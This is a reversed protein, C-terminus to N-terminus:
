TEDNKIYEDGWIKHLQTLIKISIARIDNVSEGNNVHRILQDLDPGLDKFDTKKESMVYRDLHKYLKIINPFHYREDRKKEYDEAIKKISDILTIIKYKKYYDGIKVPDIKELLPLGSTERLLDNLTLLNELHCTRRRWDKGKKQKKLCSDILKKCASRDIHAHINPYCDVLVNIECSSFGKANSIRKLDAIMTTCACKRTVALKVSIASEKLVDMKTGKRQIKKPNYM